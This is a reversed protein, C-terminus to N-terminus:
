VRRRWWRYSEPREAAKDRATSLHSMIDIMENDFAECIHDNDVKELQGLGKIVALLSDKIEHPDVQRRVDGTEDTLNWIDDKIQLRKDDTDPTGIHKRQVERFTRYLLDLANQLSKERAKKREEEIERRLRQVLRFTMIPITVTVMFSLVSSIDGVEAAMAKVSTFWGWLCTLAEHLWGLESPPGANGLQYAKIGIFAGRLVERRSGGM